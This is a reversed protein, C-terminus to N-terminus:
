ILYITEIVYNEQRFQTQGKERLMSIDHESMPRGHEKADEVAELIAREKDFYAHKSLPVCSAM